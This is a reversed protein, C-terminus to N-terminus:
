YDNTEGRKIIHSLVIIALIFGMWIALIDYGDFVGSDFYHSLANSGIYLHMNNSLQLIEFVSDISAWFLGWFVISKLNILQNSAVSFATMFYVHCLDTISYIITLILPNNIVLKYGYNFKNPYLFLYTLIGIILILVGSALIKQRALSLSSDIELLKSKSLIM